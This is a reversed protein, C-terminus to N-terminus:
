AVERKREALLEALYAPDKGLAKAIEAELQDRLLIAEHLHM